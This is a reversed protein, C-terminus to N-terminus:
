GGERTLREALLRKGVEGAERNKDQLEDFWDALHSDGERRADEMYTELRWAAHLCRQLVTILDYNKDKVPSVPLQSM